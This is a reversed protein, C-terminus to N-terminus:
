ALTGRGGAGGPLTLLEFRAGLRAGTEEGVERGGPDRGGAEGRSSVGGIAGYMEEAEVFDKMDKLIGTFAETEEMRLADEMMIQFSFVDQKM